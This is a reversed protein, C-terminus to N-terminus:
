EVDEWGTLTMWVGNRVWRVFALVAAPLAHILGVMWAVIALAGARLEVLTAFATDIDGVTSARLIELQLGLSRAADRMTRTETEIAPNNPNVLVAIIAATPLLEHLFELRKP